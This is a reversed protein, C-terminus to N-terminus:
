TSHGEWSDICQSCFLTNQCSECQVPARDETVVMYCIGCLVLDKIDQIEELNFIRNEGLYAEAAEM